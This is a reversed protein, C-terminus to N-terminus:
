ASITRAQPRRSTTPPALKNELLMLNGDTAANVANLIAEAPTIAGTLINDATLAAHASNNNFLTQYVANVFVEAQHVLSANHLNHQSPTFSNTLFPYYAQAQSSHVFQKALAKM